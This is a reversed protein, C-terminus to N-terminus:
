IPLACTQVGTVRGDRIGDEAQFFGVRDPPHGRRMQEPEHQTGTSELQRVVGGARQAGVPGEQLVFGGLARALTGLVTLVRLVEIGEAVLRLLHGGALRRTAASGGRVIWRACLGSASSANM